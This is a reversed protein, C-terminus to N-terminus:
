FAHGMQFYWAFEGYKGWAFDVRVVIGTEEATLLTIGFGASPFLVGDWNPIGGPALDSGYFTGVGGFGTLFLQWVFNWRLEMQTTFMNSGRYQGAKYGRLDPGSGLTPLSAYAADLFAHSGAARYALLLPKAISQYGNFQYDLTIYTSDSGLWTPFFGPKISAYFGDSPNYINNKSDWESTLYIGSSFVDSPNLPTGNIDFKKYDIYSVFYSAGLYLHPIVAYSGSIMGMSYAVEQNLTGIGEYEYDNNVKGYGGGLVTRIRGGKFHLSAFSGVFFSKTNTYFGPIAVASYPLDEDEYDTKFMLTLAIGGGTGLTPNQIFLPMPLFQKPKDEPGFMLFSRKEKEEAPDSGDTNGEQASAFASALLLFIIAIYVFGPLRFRM